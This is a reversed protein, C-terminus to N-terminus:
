NLNNDTAINKQYNKGCLLFPWVLGKVCIFLSTLGAFRLPVCTVICKIWDEESSEDNLTAYFIKYINYVVYILYGLLYAACFVVIYPYIQVANM